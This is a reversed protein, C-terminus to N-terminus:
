RAAYFLYGVKRKFIYAVHFLEWGAVLPTRSVPLEDAHYLIFLQVLSDWKQGHASVSNLKM